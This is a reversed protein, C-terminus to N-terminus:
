VLKLLVASIVSASKQPHSFISLSILLSSLPTYNIKTFVKFPSFSKESILSLNHNIEVVISLHM